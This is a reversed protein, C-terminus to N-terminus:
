DHKIDKLAQILANTHEPKGISVRFCDRLGDKNFYRVLIGHKELHRTVAQGRTFTADDAAVDGLVRCLLFNTQSPYIKIWGLDSLLQRMREREIVICKVNDQLYETDGLAAIAGVASAVTPTYPQKVKWLHKIVDLPFIGYGIRMGAMGLLKSFTRMVILNPHQLVWAARSPENSFDIYAEDLVSSSRCSCCASSCRM